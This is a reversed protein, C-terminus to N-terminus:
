PDLTRRFLEGRKVFMSFAYAKNPAYTFPQYIFHIGTSVTEVLKDATLSGNPAEIENSTIIAQVVTWSSSTAFEESRLLLNTTPIAADIGNGLNDWVAEKNETDALNSAAVLGPIAM